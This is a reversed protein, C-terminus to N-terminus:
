AMFRTMGGSEEVGDARHQHDAARDRPPSAPGGRDGPPSIVSSVGSRALARRRWRVKPRMQTAIPSKRMAEVAPTSRMRWQGAGARTALRLRDDVAAARPRAGTAAAAPSAETGTARVAAADSAVAPGGAPRHDGGLLCAVEGLIAMLGFGQLAQNRAALLSGYGVITTWSCLAVAAGTSVVAQVIDQEERYRTIVNLAYEAGIGFTIPLAIFNLFTM